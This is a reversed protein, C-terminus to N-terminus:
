NVKKTAQRSRKPVHINVGMEYFEKGMELSFPLEIDVAIGRQLPINKNQFEDPLLSTSFYVNTITGAVRKRDPFEVIVDKGIALYKANQQQFFGRIKVPGSRFINMIPEERLPVESELYYIRDVTGSFPSNFNRVDQPINVDGFIKMQSELIRIENDLGKLTTEQEAMVRKISQQFSIIEGSLRTSEFQIEELFREARQIDALTYVNLLKMKKMQNLEEEKKKILDQYHQKEKKKWELEKSLQQIEMRGATEVLNREEKKQIILAYQSAGDTQKNFDLSLNPLREEIFSFLLQGKKVQQAEKVHIKVLRINLPYKIAVIPLITQGVGTVHPIQFLFFVVILILGAFYIYKDVTSKRKDTFKRNITKLFGPKTKLRM